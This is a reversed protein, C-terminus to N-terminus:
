IRSYIFSPIPHTRKNLIAGLIDAKHEKLSALEQTVVQKRTESENVIVIVEDAISAVLYGDQYTSLSSCAILIVDYHKKVEDMIQRMPPSNLFTVPNLTTQGAPLVALRENISIIAQNLTAQGTIIDILGLSPTINLIKHISAAHYNADIILVKKATHQALQLGLHSILAGEGDRQEATAIYVTKFHKTNMLLHLQNCLDHLATLFRRPLKKKLEGNAFTDKRTKYDPLAGLTPINLTTEIDRTSKITQDMYEFLYALIIGLFFACFLAVILLILNGQGVPKLPVNAQEIIKVSATGIADANPLIKGNLGDKMRRINDNLQLAVPHKPGYKMEVEAMQQELDFIVYSRSVVNAIVAAGIRDFDRVSITFIDTDKVPTVTINQRLEEIEKRLNYLGREAPELSQLKAKYIKAQVKILTQKLPTAFKKEYDAPKDYLRLSTVVRQLVPTSTVIESQTLSAQTQRGNLLDKYYPAEVQKAGSVLMKVNAEYVPTRTEIGIFAIAMVTIFSLIIVAKQRFLVRVYDRLTMEM